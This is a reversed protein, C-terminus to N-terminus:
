HRATDLEYVTLTDSIKEAQRYRVQGVGVGPQLSPVDVFASLSALKVRRGDMPGGRFLIEFPKDSM